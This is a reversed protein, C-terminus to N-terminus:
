EGGEVRADPFRSQLAARDSLSLDYNGRLDLYYLALPSDILARVGDRGIRNNALGLWRLPPRDKQRALEGVIERVGGNSVGQGNLDLLWLRDWPIVWGLHLHTLSGEIASDKWWGLRLEEVERLCRSALVKQIEQSNFRIHSLDLRVFSRHEIRPFVSTLTRGLNSVEKLDLGTLRPLSPGVLLTTLWAPPVPNMRMVLDTLNGLHPCASLLDFYDATQRLESMDLKVVRALQPLAFFPELSAPMGGAGASLFRMVRLSRVPEAAFLAAADRPFSATNVDAHEVFGRAFKWGLARLRVERVWEGAHRELLRAAVREHAGAQPSYPEAQSAWVQARIFDAREPQGNEQLWDAYILRPTDEDPQALIASLLADRDSTPM